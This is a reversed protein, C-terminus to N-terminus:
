NHSSPVDPNTHTPKNSNTHTISSSKGVLFKFIESHSAANFGNVNNIYLKWSIANIYRIQTTEERFNCQHIISINDGQSTM